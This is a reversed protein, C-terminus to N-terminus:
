STARALAGTGRLTVKATAMDGVSGGLPSYKPLICNGSYSPNDPGVSSAKARFVVPFPDAGMLPALVSDVNAMDQTFTLDISWSMLGPLFEKSTVAPGSTTSELEDAEWNVSIEKVYATLDASNVSIQPTAIKFKAM